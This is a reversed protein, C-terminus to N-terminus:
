RKAGRGHFQLGIPHSFPWFDPSQLGARDPRMDGLIPATITLSTAINLDCDDQVSLMAARQVKGNPEVVM